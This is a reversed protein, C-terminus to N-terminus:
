WDQHWITERRLYVFFFDINFFLIWGSNKLIISEFLYPITADFCGQAIGLMQAGIGIRGEGRFFILIM